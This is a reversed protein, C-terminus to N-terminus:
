LPPSDQRDGQRVASGAGGGRAVVVDQAHARDLGPPDTSTSRPRDAGPRGRSPRVDGPATPAARPRTAHAPEVDDDVRRGRPAPSDDEAASSHATAAAAVVQEVEPQRPSSAPRARSAAAHMRASFSDGTRRGAAHVLRRRQPGARGRAAARSGPGTRGRVDREVEGARRPSTRSTASVRAFWASTSPWYPWRPAHSAAAVGSPTSVSRSTGAGGRRRGRRAERSPSCTRRTRCTTVSIARTSCNTSHGRPARGRPRVSM